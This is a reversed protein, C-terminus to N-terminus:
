WARVLDGFGSGLHAPRMSGGGIETMVAFCAFALFFSVLDIGRELVFHVAAGFSALGAGSFSPANFFM